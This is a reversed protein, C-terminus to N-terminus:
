PKGSPCGGQPRPISIAHNLASYQMSSTGLKPDNIFFQSGSYGTMLVYRQRVEDYIIVMNRDNYAKIVQDYNDPLTVPKGVGLTALFSVDFYQNHDHYAVDFSDIYEELTLPTTQRAYVKVGCTDLAMACSTILDGNNCINFYDEDGLNYYGWRSDCQNYFTWANTVSIAFLTTLAFIKGLM